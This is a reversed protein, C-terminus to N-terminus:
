RRRNADRITELAADPLGASRLVELLFDTKGALYSDVDTPFQKALQKKLAGYELAKEV